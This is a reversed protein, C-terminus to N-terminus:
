YVLLTAAMTKTYSLTPHRKIDNSLETPNVKLTPGKEPVNSCVSNSDGVSVIVLTPNLLFQIQLAQSLTMVKAASYPQQQMSLTPFLM